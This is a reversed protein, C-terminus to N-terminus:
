DEHPQEKPQHEGCWDDGQANPWGNFIDPHQSFNPAHRRCEVNTSSRQYRREGLYDKHIYFDNKRWLVESFRCTECTAGSM